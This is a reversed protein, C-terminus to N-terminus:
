VKFNFFSSPKRTISFEKVFELFKGDIEKRILNFIRGEYKALKSDLQFFQVVKIEYNANDSSQFFKGINGNQLNDFENHSNYECWRDVFWRDSVKTYYSLSGQGFIHIARDERSDYIDIIKDNVIDIVFTKDSESYIIQYIVYKTGDIEGSFKKQYYNEGVILNQTEFIFDGIFIKKMSIKKCESNIMNKPKLYVPFGRNSGYHLLEVTLENCSFTTTAVLTFENVLKTDNRFIFGSYNYGIGVKSPVHTLTYEPGPHVNYIDLITYVRGFDTLFNVTVSQKSVFVFKTVTNKYITYVESIEREIFDDGIMHGYKQIYNHGLVICETPYPTKDIWIRDYDVLQPM